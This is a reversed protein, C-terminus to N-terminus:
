KKMAENLARLQELCPEELLGSEQIPLDWTIAGGNAIIERTKNIVFETTYRPEGAGWWKALYSLIQFQAQGIRPGPCTVNTMDDIEGATYDEVDSHLIVPSIVGPNFAVIAQPNGAKMSAALSAFNPADPHRYMEDAFYCGDVWWAWVKDGWRLSWDRLVAEWKLQFEVLRKGNRIQWAHPWGGEFGWEWGLRELAVPDAAPAGSPIYVCLRIGKPSLADYLDSILDRRSCKSPVIGTLEDYTANPACYHGSNQGITMFYYKVGASALQEALGAVDFADIRANWMEATLDAGGDSSAAAGLYHTLAGWGAQQMWQAPHQNTTNSTTM